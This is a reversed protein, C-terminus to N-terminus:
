NVVVSHVYQFYVSALINGHSFMYENMWSGSSGCNTLLNSLDVKRYINNDIPIRRAYFNEFHCLYAIRSDLRVKTGNNSLAFHILMLGAENPNLSVKALSHQESQGYVQNRFSYVHDPHSVNCDLCIVGKRQFSVVSNTYMNRHLEKLLFTTRRNMLIGFYFGRM